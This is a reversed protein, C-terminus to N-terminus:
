IIVTQDKTGQMISYTFIKTLRTRQSTFNALDRFTEVVSINDKQKKGRNNQFNALTLQNLALVQM